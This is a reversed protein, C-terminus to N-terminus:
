TLSPLTENKKYSKGMYQYAESEEGFDNLMPNIFGQLIKDRKRILDRIKKYLGAERLHEFQQHPNFVITPKKFRRSFRPSNPHLALIFFAEEKISFSFRESQPDSSVRPDHSYSKKDQLNLKKLFRWFIKEFDNFSIDQDLCIIFSSLRGTKKRYEDIFAYFKQVIKKVQQDNTLDKEEHVVILGKTAVAKAMVCPFNKNKIFQIIEDRM